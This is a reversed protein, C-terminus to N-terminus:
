LSSCALVDAVVMLDRVGDQMWPLRGYGWDLICTVQNSLSTVVSWRMVSEGLPAWYTEQRHRVAQGSAARAIFQDM